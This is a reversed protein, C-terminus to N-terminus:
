RTGGSFAAGYPLTPAREIGGRAYSASPLVENERAASHTFVEVSGARALEGLRDRVGRMRPDSSADLMGATERYADLRHPGIPGQGSALTGPTERTAVFSGAAGVGAAYGGGALASVPDDLHRVAVSLTAEGVDAQVPGGYTVLLPVDYEESLALYSAAMGGQSHGFLEVSDGPEAGADALAAAVAAESAAHQRGYLAFNSWWDMPETRDASDVTGAVYAAFRQSGDPMTYREVRVRGEGRPIRDVTDSLSAPAAAIGSSASLRTVTVASEPGGLRTGRPVTGLGLATSAGSLLVALLGLGAIDGGPAVPAFPLLPLDNQRWLASPEATRWRATEAAVAALLGPDAAVLAVLRGRLAAARDHDGTAGALELQSSLEVLEYVDAMRDLDGAIRAVQAAADQVTASAGALEAAHPGLGRRAAALLAEIDDCDARLARLALAADRLSETDVAVIGGSGIDLEGAASM